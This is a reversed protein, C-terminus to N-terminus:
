HTCKFIREDKIVFNNNKDKILLWSSFDEFLVYEYDIYKNL